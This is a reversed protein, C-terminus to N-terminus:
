PAGPSRLPVLSPYELRCRACLLTSVPYWPQAPTSVFPARPPVACAQYTIASTRSCRASCPPCTVTLVHDANSPTSFPSTLVGPSECRRLCPHEGAGVAARTTPGALCRRATLPAADLVGAGRARSLRVDRAQARRAVRLVDRVVAVAAHSSGACRLPSARHLWRAAYLRAGGPFWCRGRAAGLPRVHSGLLGHLVGHM